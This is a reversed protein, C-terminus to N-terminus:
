NFSEGTGISGRLGARIPAIIDAYFSAQEEASFFNATSIPTGSLVETLEHELMLDLMKKQKHLLGNEDEYMSAIFSALHESLSRIKSSGVSKDGFHLHAPLKEFSEATVPGRTVAMPFSSCTGTTGSARSMTIGRAGAFPIHHNKTFVKECVDFGVSVYDNNASSNLSAWVCTASVTLEGSFLTSQNSKNVTATLPSIPTVANYLAIAEEHTRLSFTANVRFKTPQASPEVQLVGYRMDKKGLPNTSIYYCVYTGVIKEPFFAKEDSLRSSIAKEIDVDLLETPLIGRRFIKALNPRRSIEDLILGTIKSLGFSAPIQGNHYNRYSTATLHLFDRMRRESFGFLQRFYDINAPLYTTM